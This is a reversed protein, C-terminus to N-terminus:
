NMTIGPENIFNDGQHLVEIKLHVGSTMAPSLNVVANLGSASVSTIIGSAAHQTVNVSTLSAVAFQASGSQPAPQNFSNSLVSINVLHNRWSGGQSTFPILIQTGTTATVLRSTYTVHNGGTISETYRPNKNLTNIALVDTKVDAANVGGVDKITASQNYGAITCQTYGKVGYTGSLYNYSLIAIKDPRANPNTYGGDSDFGNIVARGGETGTGIFGVHYNPYTTYDPAFTSSFNFSRLGNVTVTSANFNLLFQGCSQEAGCGSVGVARCNIFDYVSRSTSENWPKKPYPNGTVKAVYDAGCSQLTSYQMRHCLYGFGCNEAWCNEFSISTKFGSNLFDIHTGCTHSQLRIKSM